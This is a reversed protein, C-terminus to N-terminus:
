WYREPEALRQGVSHPHSNTPARIPRCLGQAIDASTFFACCSSRAIRSLSAFARAAASPLGSGWGFMQSASSGVLTGGFAVRASTWAEYKRKASSHRGLGLFRWRRYVVVDIAEAGRAPTTPEREM